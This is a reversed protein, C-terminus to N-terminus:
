EFGPIRLIKVGILQLLFISFIILLLGTIAASILEKGANLKEPNGASMMIQLAGFLILLFAIGGAIGIGFPLFTNIIGSPSADICGIATWVKKEAKMCDDCAEKQPSIFTNCVYGASAPQTPTNPCGAKSTCCKYSSGPCLHIYSSYDINSGAITPPCGTFKFPDGYVCKYAPTPPFPPCGTKPDCCKKPNFGPCNVYGSKSCVSDFGIIGVDDICKKIPTPSANNSICSCGATACTSITGACRATTGTPCKNMTADVECSLDGVGYHSVNKCECTQAFIKTPNQFLVVLLFAFIFLILKKM